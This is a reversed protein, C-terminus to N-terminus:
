IMLMYEGVVTLMIQHQISRLTGGPLNEATCTWSGAQYRTVSTITLSLTTSGSVGVGGSVISGYNDLWSITPTPKGDISSGCMLTISGGELVVRQTDNEIGVFQPSDSIFSSTM